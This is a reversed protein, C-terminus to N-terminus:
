EGEKTEAPHTKVWEDYLSLLNRLGYAKMEKNYIVDICLDLLPKGNVNDAVILSRITLRLKDLVGEDVIGNSSALFQFLAYDRITQLHGDTVCIHKTGTANAQIRYM